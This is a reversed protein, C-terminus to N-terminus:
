KKKAGKKKKQVTGKAVIANVRSNNGFIKKALAACFANYSNFREGKAKKVVTKTGDKWFVITAPDNVVIKVPEPQEMTKKSMIDCAAKYMDHDADGPCCYQSADCIKNYRIPMETIERMTIGYKKETALIDSHKAHWILYNPVRILTVGDAMKINYEINTTNNVANSATVVGVLCDLAQALRSTDRIRVIDGYEFLKGNM